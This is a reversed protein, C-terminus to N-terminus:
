ANAKVGLLAQAAASGLFSVVSTPDTSPNHADADLRGLAQGVIVEWPKSSGAVACVLQRISKIKVNRMRDPDEVLKALFAADRHTPNRGLWDRVSEQLGAWTTGLVALCEDTLLLNEIAYCRLRFRAIPGVPPLDDIVGDGDRLSYAQPLEYIAQLMGACFSELESQQDVSSALVPFLRIRGNSSRAAQQWVREDDEGELILLKDDSLALSLPHGFFPAVKKLQASAPEQRVEESGFDKTGISAHESAALACVLPTSHTALCVAVSRRIEPDLSAIESVLLQAFRAQLDPHQHVDPEDLLLVNFKSPDITEFFYMIEAALSVAESEGSSIQEPSVVDGSATRFVFEAREQEISINALLRNIKDLRDSRFTREPDQRLSATNQLRRLYTVEVDRLLYASVSKFNDSQNKARISRLWNKDRELNTDISGGKQFVGGREPSLYRVNFAANRSLAADLSRLFRSKGSGNRGLLVNINTLNLLKANEVILETQRM